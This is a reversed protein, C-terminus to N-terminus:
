RQKPLRVQRDFSRSGELQIGLDILVRLKVAILAIHEQGM